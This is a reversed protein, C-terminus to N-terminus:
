FQPPFFGRILSSSIWAKQTHALARSYLSVTYGMPTCLPLASPLARTPASTAPHLIVSNLSSVLGQWHFMGFAGPQKMGFLLATFPLERTRRFQVARATTQM